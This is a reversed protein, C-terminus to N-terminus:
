LMLVDSKGTSNFNPSKTHKKSLVGLYRFDLSQCDCNADRYKIDTHLMTM